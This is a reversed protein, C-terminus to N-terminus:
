FFSVWNVFFLTNKLNIPDNNAVGIATSINIQSNNSNFLYGFGFSYLKKNQENASILALDTISYAYSDESTHYRYEINQLIYSKVFLSQEKFGRITKNGGIRFLENDIYKESDLLGIKTRAYISHKKNLELLTAATTTIKIQQAANADTKRQGFSPHISFYFTDNRFVDNKPLKYEYGFGLFYNHFTRIGDLYTSTLNESNEASFSVSLKANNRISYKLATYLKTNLFTSDQKYISFAFEPSIKSNFLYPKKAAISFEQIEDGFRNWLLNFQAGKNFVNKLKLDFYGNFQLTGNEQSAFNILGDFSSEKKRKLYVYVFTSDKTFLTEPSKIESVFNLAKSLKSIEILKKKTFISNPTINFYNKIFSKPFDEYGKFTLVDIKRKKSSRIRIKAFLTKGKIQFNELNIKSFTNGASEYSATIKDLVINLENTPITLYNKKFKLQELIFVPANNYNLNVSDIKTNLNFYVKYNKSQFVSSDIASLFYGNLKIIKQIRNVEHYLDLSDLHKKKYKIKSLFKNEIRDTSLLDLRLDQSFVGCTAGLIILLTLFHLSKNTM